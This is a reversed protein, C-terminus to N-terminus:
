YPPQLSRRCITPFGDHWRACCASFNRNPKSLRVAQPWGGSRGYKPRMGILCVQSSPETSLSTYTPILAKERSLEIIPLFCGSSRLPLTILPSLGGIINPDGGLREQWFNHGIVVVTPEREAAAEEATWTRGLSAHGGVVEFFNASLCDAVIQRARDGERWSPAPYCQNGAALGDFVGGNRVDLYDPYSLNDFSFLQQADRATVDHILIADVLSYLTTTAGIGLGLSLVAVAAMIPNRLLSRGGFRIDLWLAELRAFAFSDRSSERVALVNGFRRRVENLNGSEEAAQDIHFRIEEDLELDFRRRSLLARARKLFRM